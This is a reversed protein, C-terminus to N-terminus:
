AGPPALPRAPLKIPKLEGNIEEYNEIVADLMDRLAKAQHWPMTVAVRELLIGHQNEWTPRDEDPVQLLEAFRVRVDHLTWNMNVVNSYAEFVGDEPEELPIKALDIRAEAPSAQAKSSPQEREMFLEQAQRFCPASDMARSQPSKGTTAVTTRRSRSETNHSAIAPGFREAAGTAWFSGAKIEEDFSAVSFSEPRLTTVDDLLKSFPLFRVDLGVDFAQAVQLLTPITPHAENPDELRYAWSVKKGIEDSFRKYDWERQDRMVKIQSTLRSRISEEVFAFRYEKGTQLNQLM